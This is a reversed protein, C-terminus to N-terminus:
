KEYTYKDENTISGDPSITLSYLKSGKSLKVEYTVNDQTTLLTVGIIKSDSFKKNLKVVINTPLDKGDTYKWSCVFDGEQNYFVKEFNGEQYFSAFYGTKDESWKVNEANPFTTKFQQVLRSSPAAAASIVILLSAAYSIVRKM